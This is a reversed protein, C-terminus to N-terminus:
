WWSVDTIDQEEGYLINIKDKKAETWSLKAVTTPGLSNTNAVSLEVRQAKPNRAFM